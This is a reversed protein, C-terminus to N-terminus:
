AYYRVPNTQVKSLLTAFNPFKKKLIEELLEKTFVESEYHGIDCIMLRGEADFFEHYKFDATVFVDAGQRLANGLLFSGSGGCIAVRRVEKGTFPTHRIVNLGMREKLCALWAAESMPEPLEAIAGSGVEQHENELLHLYYAIEEYPHAERLARLVKGELHAPFIVEVRHESVEEARGAQGIFPQSSDSPTFTGTGASRFSCNRYEGIHGAGAAFLADLVAQTHTEPVFVTLKELLQKKPSLIRINELGLKEAIKWNVGGKVADLNTHIAYLAIDQRVAALVTREVYNKGNLKKLGRFVIPHHAIILNCGLEAAERVVDETCDLTLLARTVVTSPDGVILGANDYSEQYAPPALQELYGTVEQITLM